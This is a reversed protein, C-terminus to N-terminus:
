RLISGPDQAQRLATCLRIAERTKALSRALAPQDPIRPAFFQQLRESEADTCAHQGLLEPLVWSIRGLRELLRQHHEVFWQWAADRQARTDRRGLALHVIEGGRMRPDLALERVRHALAPTDVYELGAVLARRVAIDHVRFLQATLARVAAEGREQVTVGLVAGLLGPDVAAFDPPQGRQSLARDGQALLAARVEPLRYVLALREALLSRLEGDAESEGKRQRYGLRQLRPLYTARVWAVLRQRQADSAAEHRWLWDLQDLVAAALDKGDM